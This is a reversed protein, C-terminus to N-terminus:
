PSLPVLVVLSLRNGFQNDRTVPRLVVGDSSPSTHWAGDAHDDSLEGRSDAQDIAAVARLSASSPVAQVRRVCVSRSGAEDFAIVAGTSPSL